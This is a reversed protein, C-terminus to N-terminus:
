VQLCHMETWAMASSLNSIRCPVLTLGFLTSVCSVYPLRIKFSTCCFLIYLSICMALSLVVTARACTIRIEHWEIVFRARQGGWSPPDPTPHGMEGGWFFKGSNASSYPIVFNMSGLGGERACPVSFSRPVQHKCAGALTWFFRM